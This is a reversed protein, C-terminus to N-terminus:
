DRDKLLYVNKIEQQLLDPNDCKGQTYVISIGNKLLFDTDRCNNDLFQKAEADSPKAYEHIRTYVSKGTIAAFPTAKWPELIAKDYEDDVNERIWVFARYDEADIIQYFTASQRSPITTALTVGVLVLCLIYGINEAAPRAIRPMKLWSILKEPLKLNKVTMLGAGAVMSMLLMMYMLGRYYM